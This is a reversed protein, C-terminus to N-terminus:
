DGECHKMEVEIMRGVTGWEIALLHSIECVIAGDRMWEWGSRPDLESQRDSKSACDVALVLYWIETGVPRLWYEKGIDDCELVAIFGDYGSVDQAIQGMRQRYETVRRMIGPSYQSARGTVVTCVPMPSPTPTATPIATPVPTSTPTFQSTPQPTPKPTPTARVPRPKEVSLELPLGRAVVPQPTLILLLVLALLTRM